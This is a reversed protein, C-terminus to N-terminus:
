KVRNSAPNGRGLRRKPPRFSLIMVALLLAVFFTEYIPSPQRLVLVLVVAFASWAILFHRKWARRLFASAMAILGLLAAAAWLSIEYLEGAPSQARGEARAKIGGLMRHVMIYEGPDMLLRVSLASRPRELRGRIRLILRTKGEDAPSLLWSWTLHAGAPRIDFVLSSNAEAIVVPWNPGSGMPIEMGAEITQYEPLIRVASPGDQIKLARVIWDYSYFGGRRYGMQALWPWVKEPPADITVARTAVCNPAEVTTDGPMPRGAEAGSAGWTRHWPRIFLLYAAVFLALVILTWGGVRGIKRWANM